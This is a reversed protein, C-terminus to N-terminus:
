QYQVPATPLRDRGIEIILEPCSVPASLGPLYLEYAPLFTTVYARVEAESMGPNGSARMREEAEVRWDIVDHKDMPKLEILADLMSWWKEYARLRDNIERLRPDHIKDDAVVRFGLMWGEFFVLDLPLNTKKWATQPLRDGKGENLSKEYRPILVTGQQGRLEGLVRAGLALDHTGPYGRSQLYPNEPNEGALRVQEARTLYFDDISVTVARYGEHEFLECLMRTLTTKGSGQPGNVGIIAPAASKLQRLCWEYTPLYLRECRAHANAATDLCRELFALRDNRLRTDKM